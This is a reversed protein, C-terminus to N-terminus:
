NFPRNQSQAPNFQQNLSNTLPHQSQNFHDLNTKLNTKLSISPTKDSQNQTPQNNRQSNRQINGQNQNQNNGQNQNQNQNQQNQGQNQNQNQFAGSKRLISVPSHSSALIANSSNIFSIPNCKQVPIYQVVPEWETRPVNYQRHEVTYSDQVTRTVPQLEVYQRQFPVEEHSMKNLCVLQLQDLWHVMSLHLLLELSDVTNPHLLLVLMLVTNSHM